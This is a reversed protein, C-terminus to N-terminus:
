RVTHLFLEGTTDFTIRMIDELDFRVTQAGGPIVKGPTPQLVNNIVCWATITAQAKNTVDLEVTNVSRTLQLVADYGCQIGDATVHATSANKVSFVFDPTVVPLPDGNSIEVTFDFPQVTLPRGMLHPVFRRSMDASSRARARLGEMLNWYISQTRKKLIEIIVALGNSGGALLGATLVVDVGYFLTRHSGSLQLPPVPSLDLLAELTRPGAGSVLLGFLFGVALRTAERKSSVEVLAQRATASESAFFAADATQQEEGFLLDNIM